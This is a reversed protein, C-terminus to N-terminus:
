QDVVMQKIFDSSEAPCLAVARIMSLRETCLAVVKPDGSLQSITQTEEFALREHDATELLVMPGSLAATFGREFPLVQVSVNRLLAASLVQNLQDKDVYRGRLVAEYLVFSLSVLPKRTLLSCRELRAAVREDVTEEVLPPSFGSIVARAYAATQLLGPIFAVEYSWLSIAERERAMFDQARAPFRERRVFHKAASLLGEARLLADAADLLQPTPMRVGQEMSKITDPAYKAAAGLEERSVGARTRWRKLQDGCYRWAAPPPDQVSM